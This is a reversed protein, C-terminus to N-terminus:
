AEAVHPGAGTVLTLLPTSKLLSLSQWYSLRTWLLWIRIIGVARGVRVSLPPKWWGRRAVTSINDVNPNNFPKVWWSRLRSSAVLAFVPPRQALGMSWFPSSVCSLSFFVFLSCGALWVSQSPGAWLWVSTPLSSRVCSPAPLPLPSSLSSFVLTTVGKLFPLSFVCRWGLVGGFLGVRGGRARSERKLAVKKNKNIKQPSSTEKKTTQKKNLASAGKFKYANTTGRYRNRGRREQQYIDREGCRQRQEEGEGSKGWVAGRWPPGCPDGRQAPHKHESPPSSFCFCFVAWHPRHQQAGPARQRLAACLTSRLPARAASRCRAGPACCCRGWWVSGTKVRKRERVERTREGRVEGGRGSQRERRSGAHEGGEGRRRRRRWRWWRWWGWAWRATHKRKGKRKKGGQGRRM